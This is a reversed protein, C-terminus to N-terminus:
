QLDDLFLLGSMYRDREWFIAVAVSRVISPLGDLKESHEESEDTESSPSNVCVFLLLPLM